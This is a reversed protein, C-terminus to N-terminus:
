LEDVDHGAVVLVRNEFLKRHKFLGRVHGGKIQGSEIDDCGGFSETTGSHGSVCCLFDLRSESCGQAGIPGGYYGNPDRMLEPRKYGVHVLKLEISASVINLFINVFSTPLITSRASPSRAGHTWFVTNPWASLISPWDPM